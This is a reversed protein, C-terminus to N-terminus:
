NKSCADFIAKFSVWITAVITYIIGGVYPLIFFVAFLVLIIIGVVTGM